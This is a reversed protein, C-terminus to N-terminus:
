LRSYFPHSPPPDCRTCCVTFIRIGVIHVKIHEHLQKEHEQELQQRQQEYQQLLFHQQLQQQQKISALQQQLHQDQFLEQPVFQRRASEPSGLPSTQNIDSPPFLCFFNNTKKTKKIIIIILVFGNHCNSDSRWLFITDFSNTSPYVHM